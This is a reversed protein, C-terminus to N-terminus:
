ENYVFKIGLLKALTRLEKVHNGFAISYHHGTTNRLLQDLDGKFTLGFGPWREGLVDGEEVERQSTTATAVHFRLTDGNGGVRLMTIERGVPLEFNISSGRMHKVFYEDPVAEDSINSPIPWLSVGKERDAMSYPATGCNFFTIKKAPKNLRAIDAFFAPKGTLLRLIYMSLGAPVDAECAVTIGM